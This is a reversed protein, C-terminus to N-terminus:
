GNTPSVVQPDTPTAPPGEIIIPVTMSFAKGCNDYVVIVPNFSYTGQGPAPFSINADLTAGNTTYAVVGPSTYVRMAAVGSSCQPSRGTARFVLPTGYPFSYASVPNSLNVGGTGPESLNYKGTWLLYGNGSSQQPPSKQYANSSTQGSSNMGYLNNNGDLYLESFNFYPLGEYLNFTTNDTMNIPTCGSYVLSAAGSAQTNFKAIFSCNDQEYTRDTVPFFPDGSRNGGITVSNPSVLLVQTDETALPPNGALYSSYVLNGAPDIETLFGLHIGSGTAPFTKQFANATTPLNLGAEGGVYYYGASDRMVNTFEVNNLVTSYVLAAGGPNLTTVFGGEDGSQRMGNATIPYNPSYTYGNITANGAADVLVQSPVDDYKGGVLTAYELATATSNFKMVFADNDGGYTSQYAGPTAPFPATLGSAHNYEGTVYANSASDIAVSFPIVNPQNSLFTSYDLASGSSNLKVLFFRWSALEAGNYAGSTTPFTSTTFNLTGNNGNTFDGTEGVIYVNGTSDLTFGDPLSANNPGTGGVITSWVLYSGDQSLKSVFVEGTYNKTEYKQYAGPTTPFNSSGTEGVIYSYGASDVRFGNYREFGNGDLYTGYVLAPDIVLAKSKDYAGLRFSVRNKDIRYGADVESRGAESVQYAVPKLWRMKGAATKLVLSGDEDITIEDAGEISLSIMAPDAHAAIDFDYELQRQRGYYKLDIGRYVEAYKVAAFNAVGTKWSDRSGLLYNTRASQEEVGVPASNENAGRMTIRLAANNDKGAVKLVVANQLLYTQYRGSRAMYRVQSDSQGVNQEFLLPLREGLSQAQNVSAQQASTQCQGHEFGFAFFTFLFVFVAILRTASSSDSTPDM